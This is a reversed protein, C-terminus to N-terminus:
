VQCFSPQARAAHPCPSANCGQCAASRELQVARDELDTAARMLMEAYAPLKTLEAQERLSHAIRRIEAVQDALDVKTM